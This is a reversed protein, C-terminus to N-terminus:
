QQATRLQLPWHGAAYGPAQQTIAGCVAESFANDDPTAGLTVTLAPLGLSAPEVMFAPLGEYASFYLSTLEWTGGYALCNDAPPLEAPAADARLLVLTDIQGRMILQGYQDTYLYMSGFSDDQVYWLGAANDYLLPLPTQGLYGGRVQGDETIVCNGDFGPWLHYIQSGDYYWTCLAPMWEGVLAEDVAPTEALAPLACLFLLALLLALKRM